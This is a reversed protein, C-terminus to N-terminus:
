LSVSSTSSPKWRDTSTSGSGQRRILICSKTSYTNSVLVKLGRMSLMEALGKSYDPYKGGICVAILAESSKLHYCLFEAVHRLTELDTEKM